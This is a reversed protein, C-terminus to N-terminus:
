TMVAKDLILFKQGGQMRMLIVGDGVSLANHVTVTTDGSVAHSHIPDGGEQSTMSVTVKTQYDCVTHTLILFSEDLVLRQDITVILPAVSTVKGFLFATPKQADVADVAAKKIIDILNSGTM